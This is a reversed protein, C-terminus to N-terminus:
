QPNIPTVSSTAAAAANQNEVSLVYQVIDGQILQNAIYNLVQARTAPGNISANAAVQYAAVMRDIQADPIAYTKTATTQGTEVVQFTISGAGAQVALLSLMLALVARKM